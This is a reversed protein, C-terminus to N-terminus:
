ILGAEKMKSEYEAFTIKGLHYQREIAEGDLSKECWDCIVSEAGKLERGCIECYNPDM